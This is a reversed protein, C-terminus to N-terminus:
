MSALQWMNAHEQRMDALERYSEKVYLCKSEASKSLYYAAEELAKEMYMKALEKMKMGKRKITAKDGQLLYVGDLVHRLM